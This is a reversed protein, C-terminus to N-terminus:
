WMCNEKYIKDLIAKKDLKFESFLPEVNDQKESWDVSGEPFRVVIHNKKTKDREWTTYFRQEPINSIKACAISEIMDPAPGQALLIWRDKFIELDRPLEPYSVSANLTVSRLNCRKERWFIHVAVSCPGKPTGFVFTQDLGHRGEERSKSNHEQIMKLRNDEYVIEGVRFYVASLKPHMHILEQGVSERVFTGWLIDSKYKSMKKPNHGHEALFAHFRRKVDTKM